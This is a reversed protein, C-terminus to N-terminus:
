FVAKNISKSMIRRIYLSRHNVQNNMLNLSMDNSNFRSARNRAVRRGSLSFKVVILLGIASKKRLRHVNTERLMFYKIDYWSNQRLRTLENNLQERRQKSKSWAFEDAQQKLANLVAFPQCYYCELFYM